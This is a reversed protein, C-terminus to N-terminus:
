RNRDGDAWHLWRRQMWMFIINIVVGIVGAVFTGAIALDL